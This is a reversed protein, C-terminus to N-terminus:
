VATEHWRARSPPLSLAADRLAHVLPLGALYAHRPWNNVIKREHGKRQLKKSWGM